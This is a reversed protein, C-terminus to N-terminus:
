LLGLRRMEADMNKVSTGLFEEYDPRVIDLAKIMVNRLADKPMIKRVIPELDHAAINVFGDPVLGGLTKDPLDAIFHSVLRPYTRVASDLDSFNKPKFMRYFDVINKRTIGGGFFGSVHGAIGDLDANTLKNLTGDLLKAASPHMKAVYLEVGLEILSHAIDNDPLPLEAGHMAKVDDVLKKCRVETYGPKKGGYELHSYYDLGAPTQGHLLFGIGLQRYEPANRDLYKLFDMGRGHTDKEDLTGSIDAIDPLTSGVIALPSDGVIM